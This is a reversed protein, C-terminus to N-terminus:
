SLFDTKFEYDYDEIHFNYEHKEFIKPIRELKKILYNAKNNIKLISNKIINKCYTLDDKFKIDFHKCFDKTLLIFEKEDHKNLFEKYFTDFNFTRIYIAEQYIKLNHLDNKPNESNKLREYTEAIRSRMEHDLSLYFIHLFDSWIEYTNGLKKHDQLAQSLVWSGGQKKNQFTIKYLELLHTLEHHLLAYIQNDADIKNKLMEEKSLKLQLNMLIPLMQVDNEFEYMDTLQPVNAYNTFKAPNVDINLCLQNLKLDIGSILKVDFKINRTIFDHKEIESILIRVYERVTNNMGKSEFLFEEFYNIHKM